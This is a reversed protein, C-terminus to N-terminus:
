THFSYIACRQGTGILDLKALHVTFHVQVHSANTAVKKSVERDPLRQEEVILRLKVYGIHSASMQTFNWVCASFFVWYWLVVQLIVYM